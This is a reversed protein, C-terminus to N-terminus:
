EKICRVCIGSKPSTAFLWMNAYMSYTRHAALTETSSSFEPNFMWLNGNLGMGGFEGTDDRYGSPEASFTSINSAGTNPAVWLGSGDATTGTTKLMGGAKDDFSNADPDLHKKLTNFDTSDPVRWGQPCLGRQDHVAFANYYYGYLNNHQPDNDYESRAGTSLAAWNEDDTELPIPDGNAFLTTRLNETMWEQSGIVVSGYDNGDIDTMGEGPSIQPEYVEEPIEPVEPVEIDKKCATFTISLLLLAIPSIKLLDKM